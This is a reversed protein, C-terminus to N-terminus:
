DSRAMGPPNRYTFNGSSELTAPHDPPKVGCAFRLGRWGQPAAIQSVIAVKSHQQSTWRISAGRWGLSSRAM